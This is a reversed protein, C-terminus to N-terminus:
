KNDNQIRAGECFVRYYVISLYLKSYNEAYYWPKDM